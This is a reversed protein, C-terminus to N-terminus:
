VDVQALRKSEKLAQIPGMNKDVAAYNSFSVWAIVWIAPVILLLLSVGVALVALVAVVLLIFYKRANFRVFEGLSIRRRDALALGYVTLVLFFILTVIDEYSQHGSDVYSTHGQAVLSVLSAALSVGIFLMAPAPNKKIQEFVASYAAFAGPWSSKTM